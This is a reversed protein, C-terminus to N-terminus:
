IYTEACQVVGKTQTDNTHQKSTTRVYLVLTVAHQVIELLPSRQDKDRRVDRGAAQVHLVDAHHDVEIEWLLHLHTLWCARVCATPSPTITLACGVTGTM